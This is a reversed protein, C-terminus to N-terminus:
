RGTHGFGGVGRETNSLESVEEFEFKIVEELFIQGIRDGVKYPFKSYSLKFDEYNRGGVLNSIGKNHLRM